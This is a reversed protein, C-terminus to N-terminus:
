NVRQLIGIPKMFLARGAASAFFTDLAAPGATITVDGYEGPEVTGALAGKEIAARAAKEDILYLALSGDASIRYLVPM